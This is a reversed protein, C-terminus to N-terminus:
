QPTDPTMKIYKSLLCVRVISIVHDSVFEGVINHESLYYISLLMKFHEDLTCDSGINYAVDM